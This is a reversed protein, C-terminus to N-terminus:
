AQFPLLLVTSIRPRHAARGVGVHQAPCRGRRQFLADLGVRFVEDDALEEATKWYSQARLPVITDAILRRPTVLAHSVARATSSTLKSAAAPRKTTSSPGDPQPLDVVSRRIAPRSSTLAPRTSIPSVSTVDRGGARRPMAM